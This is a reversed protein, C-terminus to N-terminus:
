AGRRWLFVGLSGRDLRGERDKLFARLYVKRTPDIVANVPDRLSAREPTADRTGHLAELDSRPAKM